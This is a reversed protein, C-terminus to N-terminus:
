SHSWHYAGTDSQRTYISIKPFCANGRSSENMLGIGLERIQDGLTNSGFVPERVEAQQLLKLWEGLVRLDSLTELSDLFLVLQSQGFNDFIFQAGDQIRSGHERNM